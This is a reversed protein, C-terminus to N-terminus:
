INPTELVAWDNEPRQEQDMLVARVPAGEGGKIKVPFSYLTYCGAPVEKLNIGELIPIGKELIKRHVVSESSGYKEISIYDIGVLGAGKQLCWQAGKESLYVYKEDFVGADILGETSNRTKFLVAEGSRIDVRELEAPEISIRDQVHIVHATLIFKEVPLCDITKGDKVFHRPADLHTGAHASMTLKSLDCADGKDLRLVMKREYPPDGPYDISEGGLSVSIDYLKPFAM